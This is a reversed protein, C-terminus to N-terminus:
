ILYHHQFPHSFAKKISGLVGVDNKYLDVLKNLYFTTSLNSRIFDDIGVNTGLSFMSQKSNALITNNISKLIQNYTYSRSAAGEIILNEHYALQSVTGRFGATNIKALTIFNTSIRELTSAVLKGENTDVSFKINSIYGKGSNFQKKEEDNLEKLNSPFGKSSTKKETAPKDSRKNKTSPTKSKRVEKLLEASEEETLMHSEANRRKIEAAVDRTDKLFDERTPSKKNSNRSFMSVPDFSNDIVSPIASSIGNFVGPVLTKAQEKVGDSKMMEKMESFDM